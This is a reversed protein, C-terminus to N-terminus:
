RLTQNPSVDFSMKQLVQQLVPLAPNLVSRCRTVSAKFLSSNRCVQQQKRWLQGKFDERWTLAPTEVGEKVPM